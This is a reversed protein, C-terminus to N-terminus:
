NSKFNYVPKLIKIVDVSDEINNLIEKMPKYAQPAEDLTSQSVCTTYIGEMSQKFEELSIKRKAEGRSLIRGAGHPASYNWEKNGKGIGYIIGDKMNIPIIVAEGDKASIAGKRLIMNDMDIYNHTCQIGYRYTTKFLEKFTAEEDYHYLINSIIAVRNLKAYEQVIKMDHLYDEMLTGELYCLHDQPKKITSIVEQILTEKGADMLDKIAFEKILKYKDKCYEIARKQYIDAVQKGLNRSGSHVILFLMGTNDKGVEIFHNGGGLTGISNYARQIKIEDACRLKKLNIDYGMPIKLRKPYTDFGHPISRRIVKDLIELNIGKGIAVMTIGCGIDVGVLNPVIKDTITMTTGITCGKGMHCDPMIRIISEKFSEQNCLEIVQGITNQDVNDTYVVANNYKGQLKIM